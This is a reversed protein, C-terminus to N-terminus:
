ILAEVRKRLVGALEMLGLLTPGAAGAPLSRTQRAQSMYQLHGNWDSDPLSRVIIELAEKPSAVTQGELELIAAAAARLPAASEAIVLALQEERLSVLSYRERLRLSLNILIQQTRQILATRSPAAKALLDEGHL